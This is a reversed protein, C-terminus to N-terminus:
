PVECSGSCEVPGPDCTCAKMLSTDVLLDETVFCSIVEPGSEDGTKWLRWAEEM